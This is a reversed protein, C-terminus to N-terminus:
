LEAFAQYIYKLQEQTEIYENSHKQGELVLKGEQYGQLQMFSLPRWDQDTLPSTSFMASDKEKLCYLSERLNTHAYVTEGDALLLNLKNGESMGRVVEDIIAFREAALLPGGKDRIGANLRELIYLLIRESDTDGQQRKAYVNLPEYHFITGNHILTWKRGSIDYGTFPHCNRYEVAGITAYRIHALATATYIPVSLREKLYSSSLASVPEKETLIEQQEQYALGWGHPHQCGAQYFIRLYENIEREKKSTFGWIKCM